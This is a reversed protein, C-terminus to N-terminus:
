SPSCGNDERGRVHGDRIGDGPYGTPRRFSAVPTPASTDPGTLRDRRTRGRRVPATGTASRVRAATCGELSILEARGGYAFTGWPAGLALAVQFLAVAGFLVAAVIAATGVDM